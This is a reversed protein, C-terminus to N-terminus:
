IRLVLADMANSANYAALGVGASTMSHGQTAYTGYTTSAGRQFGIDRPRTIQCCGDIRYNDDVKRIYDTLLVDM